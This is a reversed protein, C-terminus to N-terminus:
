RGATDWGASGRMLRELDKRVQPATSTDQGAPFRMMWHGMPDVVYLHDALRRASTCSSGRSSHDDTAWASASM